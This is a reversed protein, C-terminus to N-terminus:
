MGTILPILIPVAFSLVAGSVLSYITVHDDTASIVVPLATDMAAAGPMAVCELYGIKASVFPILVVSLLERLVNSLFAVAAVAASYDALLVPALSSWSFGASVALTDKMSMPIILSVLAAAGFTGVCVAVPFVFIGPGALRIERLINGQRGMDLGVFFLILCLGVTILSSCCAAVAEPIVWHGLAMGFVVSGTVMWTMKHSTQPQKSKEAKQAEDSEGKRVDTETKREADAAGKVSERDCIEAADSVNKRRKRGWRDIGMIKRVCFVVIVSGALTAAAILFASVGIAGLSSIVRDDAGIKVGLFFILFVLLVTQLGSLWRMQLRRIKKVSGAAIGMIIMGMYLTLSELTGM